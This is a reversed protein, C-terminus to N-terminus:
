ILSQSCKNMLRCTEVRFDAPRDRCPPHEYTIIRLYNRVTLPQTTHWSRNPTTNANKLRSRCQISQVRLKTTLDIFVQSAVAAKVRRNENWMIRCAIWSVASYKKLPHEELTCIRVKNHFKEFPWRRGIKKWASRAKWVCKSLGYM